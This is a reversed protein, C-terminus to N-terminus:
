SLWEDLHAAVFADDSLEPYATCVREIEEAQGPSLRERESLCWTGALLGQRRLVEHVGAISGAFGNAVDFIAGNADTLRNGLAALEAPVEGGAAHLDRCRGLLEVAARTWVAWQGLLGGVFRAEVERGAVPFRWTTTLDHVIADDNGTYLAVEGTRGSDCLARVVDVTRYRNFPAVKVALVDPIDFFRRWFAHTLPIGGVATQLYFGVLPIRGAVAACHDVLEDLTAGRLAALGLLAAEYGRDVLEGAERLAQERRGLVGGIRAVRAGTAQEHREIEEIVVDLVRHFLQPQERIEFQTTHVGAAIGGAGAALYYRVLARQRREDFTLEETLALPMAPIVHGALMLERITATNM